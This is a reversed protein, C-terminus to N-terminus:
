SQLRQIKDAAEAVDAENKVFYYVANDQQRVCVRGEKTALFEHVARTAGKWFGYDDLIVIGGDTVKPYLVRLCVEISSYWDGDLRLVSIPQPLQLEPITEEFYGRILIPREVGARRMTERAQAEEARCNNFYFPSDGRKSWEGAFSGDKETPAPLGEFSDCLVYERERGLVEAIGAIMGGRWVGCEVVCGPVAGARQALLLNTMYKRRPIMTVDRYKEYLRPIEPSRRYAWRDQLAKLSGAVLTRIRASM